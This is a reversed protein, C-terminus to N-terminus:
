SSSSSSSTEDNMSLGLKQCKTVQQFSRLEEGCMDKCTWCKLKLLAEKKQLKLWTQVLWSAM